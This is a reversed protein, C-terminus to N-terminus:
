NFWQQIQREVSFDSLQYSRDIKNENEIFELILNLKKDNLNDLSVNLVGNFKYSEVLKQPASGESSLILIKRNFSLYTSLKSSLFIDNKISANYDLLIDARSIYEQVYDTHKFTKFRSKNELLIYRDICEQINDSGVFWFELNINNILLKTYFDLLVIPDRKGYLSGLYLIIIKDRRTVPLEKWEKVPNHVVFSNNSQLGLIQLQYELMLSNSASIGNSKKYFPKIANLVANRYFRNEGWELPSPLPDTAHIYFQANYKLSLMYGSRLLELKMNGSLMVIIKDIKFEKFESNIFHVIYRFIKRSLFYRNWRRFIILNLKQLINNKSEKRPLIFTYKDNKAISQSFIIAKHRKLIATALSQVILGTPSKDYSSTILISVTKM